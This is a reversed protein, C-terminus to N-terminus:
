SIRSTCAYLVCAAAEAEQRQREAEAAVQAALAAAALREAEARAEEEARVRAAAEEAVARQRLLEQQAQRAAEYARTVEAQASLATSVRLIIGWLLHAKDDTSVGHLRRHKRPVCAAVNAASARRVQHDEWERRKAESAARAELYALQVAEAGGLAGTGQQLRLSALLSAQFVPACWASSCSSVSPPFPLATYFLTTITHTQGRRALEEKGREWDCQRQVLGRGVEMDAEANRRNAEEPDGSREAVVAEAMVAEAVATAARRRGGSHM